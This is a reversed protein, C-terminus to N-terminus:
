RRDREKEFMKFEENEELNKLNMAKVVTEFANLVNEGAKRERLKFYDNTDKERQEMVRKLDNMSKIDINRQEQKQEALTIKKQEIEKLLLLLAEKEENKKTKVMQKEKEIEEKVTKM